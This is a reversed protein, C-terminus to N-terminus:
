KGRAEEWEKLAEIAVHNIFTHVCTIQKEDNSHYAEAIVSPHNAYHKLADALKGALERWKKIEAQHELYAHAAKPAQRFAVAFLEKADMGEHRAISALCEFALIIQIKKPLDEGEYEVDMHLKLKEDADIGFSCDSWKANITKM